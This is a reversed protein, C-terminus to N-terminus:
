GTSSLKDGFNNVRRNLIEKLDQVNLKDLEGGSKYYDNSQNIYIKKRESFAEDVNLALRPEPPVKNFRNKVSYSSLETLEPWEFPKEWLFYYNDIPQLDNCWSPSRPKATIIFLDQLPLRYICIGKEAKDKLFEFVDKTTDNWGEIFDEFWKTWSDRVSSELSYLKQIDNMFNAIYTLSREDYPKPDVLIPRYNFPNVKTSITPVKILLHFGEINPRLPHSPDAFPYWRVHVTKPELGTLEGIPTKCNLKNKMEFEVVKDSCYSRYVTKCGFPFFSNQSVASFKWQHQTEVGKHLNALQPDICPKFLESFNGVMYIDGVTM